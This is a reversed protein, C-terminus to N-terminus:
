SKVFSFNVIIESNGVPAAMPPLKNYLSLLLQRVVYSSSNLCSAHLLLLTDAEDHNHIRLNPPIFMNGETVANYTVMFNSLERTPSRSYSLVKQAFYECLEAKTRVDSLCM